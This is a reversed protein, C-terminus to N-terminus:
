WFDVSAFQYDFNLIHFNESMSFLNYIDSTTFPQIWMEGIKHIVLVQPSWVSALLKLCLQFVRWVKIYKTLIYRQSWMQRQAGYCYLESMDARM